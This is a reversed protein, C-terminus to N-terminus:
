WTTGENTCNRRTAEVVVVEVLLWGSSRRRGRESGRRKKGEERWCIRDIYMDKSERNIDTQNSGASRLPKTKESLRSGDGVVGSVFNRGALQFRKM